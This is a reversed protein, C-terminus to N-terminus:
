FNNGYFGYNTVTMHVRSGTAIVQDFTSTDVAAREPAPVRARKPAPSAGCLALVLGSLVVAKLVTVPTRPRSM